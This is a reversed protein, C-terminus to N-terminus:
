RRSGLWPYDSEAPADLCFITSSHGQAPSHNNQTGLPPASQSASLELRRSCRGGITIAASAETTSTKPPEVGERRRGRELTRVNPATAVCYTQPLPPVRSLSTSFCWSGQARRSWLKQWSPIRPNAVSNNPPTVSGCALRSRRRCFGSESPRKGFFDSPFRSIVCLCYLGSSGDASNTASGRPALDSVQLYSCTPHSPSQHLSPPILPQPRQPPKPNVPSSHLKPSSIWFNYSCLGM